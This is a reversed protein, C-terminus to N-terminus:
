VQKMRSKQIGIYIIWKKKEKLKRIWLELADNLEKVLDM